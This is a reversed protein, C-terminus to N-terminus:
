HGGHGSAPKRLRVQVDRAKPAWAASPASHPVAGARAPEPLQGTHGHAPHHDAVRLAAAPHGAQACFLMSVAAFGQLPLAGIALWAVVFRCMSM